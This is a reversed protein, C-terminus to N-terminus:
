EFRTTMVYPRVDRGGNSDTARLLYRGKDPIEVMLKGDGKPTKDGLWNGGAASHVGLAIDAGQPASIVEISWTGKGPAEVVYYDADNKPLIAGTVTGNLAIPAALAATDNPEFADEAATFRSEVRYPQASRMGNADTIRLVYRGPTKVDTLLLGDGKPSIDPLWNGGGSPHVGLDIELGPPAELVRIKWEGPAALDFAFHDADGKPLIAGTITQDPLATAALAANDNPEHPDPATTMALDLTYPEVSRTGNRDTAQLVYKGPWKLDVVLKGDDKDSMDPLWNGGAAPHVGLDIDMGAPAQAVSITWEGPKSADIVYYDADNAPLITGVVKGTPVIKAATAASANPEQRDPSPSFKLNLVYPDVSRGKNDDTVRLVYKDPSDIDVVLRGDGKPSQDAYWNSGAANHVGLGIALGDPRAVDEIVWEGPQTVEIVYYDADGAPLIAGVVRGSPPIQSASAANGNPEHADPSPRFRSTVRYATQAAAGKIRVVYKGPSDLDVVLTGDGKGSRDALWNGGAANHAGLEVSGAPTGQGLSIEWEGALPTSLSYYDADGAKHLTGSIDAMQPLLAALASNDNPETEAFATLSGAPAVTGTTSGTLSGYQPQGGAATGGNPKRPKGQGDATVESVLPCEFVFSWKTGSTNRDCNPIVKVAATSGPVPIDVEFTGTHSVCGTTLSAGGNVSVTMEDKISHMQWSFGARGTFLGLDVEVGGGADGGEKVASNCSPKRVEPFMIPIHREIPELGYVEVKVSWDLEKGQVDEVRWEVEHEMHIEDADDILKYEAKPETLRFPFEPTSVVMAPLKDLFGLPPAMGALKVRFDLKAKFVQNPLDGVPGTPEVTIQDPMVIRLDEVAFDTTRGRPNAHEDYSYQYIDFPLSARVGGYAEMASGKRIPQLLPNAPPNQKDYLIADTVVRHTRRPEPGPMTTLWDKVNAETISDAAGNEILVKQLSLLNKAGAKAIAVRDSVSFRQFDAHNIFWLNEPRLQDFSLSLEKLARDLKPTYHVWDPMKNVKILEELVQHIRTIDPRNFDRGCFELPYSACLEEKFDLLAKITDDTMKYAKDRDASFFDPLHNAPGHGFLDAWGDHPGRDQLFHLFPGPNKARLGQVWLELEDKRKQEQLLAKIEPGTFGAARGQDIIEKSNFAHFRRWKRRFRADSAGGALAILEDTSGFPMPSTEPAWDIAYTASAIQFAQRETFGVHLALYYTWAYHEYEYARGHRPAVLIALAFVLVILARTM